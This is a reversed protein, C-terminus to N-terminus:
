CTLRRTRSRWVAAYDFPDLKRRVSRDASASKNHRGAGESSSTSYKVYPLFFKLAISTAFKNKQVCHRYQSIISAHIDVFFVYRSINARQALSRFFASQALGSHIFEAWLLALFQLCAHLPLRHRPVSFTISVVYPPKIVIPLISTRQPAALRFGGQRPARNPLLM